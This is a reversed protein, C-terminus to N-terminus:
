NAAIVMDDGIIVPGAIVVSLVRNGIKPVAKYPFVECHCVEIRVCVVMTKPVLM